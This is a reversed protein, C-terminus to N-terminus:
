DAWTYNSEITAPKVSSDRHFFIRCVSFFFVSCHL